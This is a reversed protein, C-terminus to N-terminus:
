AIEALVREIQQAVQDVGAMGDVRHVMGKEM